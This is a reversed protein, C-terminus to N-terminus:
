ATPISSFLGICTDSDGDDLAFPKESSMTLSLLFHHFMSFNVINAVAGTLEVILQNCNCRRRFLHIIRYRDCLRVPRTALGISLTIQTM